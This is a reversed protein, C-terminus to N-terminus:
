YLHIGRYSFKVNRLLETSEYSLQKLLEENIGGTEFNILVDM